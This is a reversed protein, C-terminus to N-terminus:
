VFRFECNKLYVMAPKIESIEGAVWVQSHSRLTKFQPYKSLDVQECYVYLGVTSAPILCVTYVDAMTSVLSYPHVHEFPLLWEVKLGVYCKAVMEQQFLPVADIAAGIELPLPSKSYEEAVFPGDVSKAEAMDVSTPHTRHEVVSPVGVSQAETVRQPQNIVLKEVQNIKVEQISASSNQSPTQVTLNVVKGASDRKDRVSELARAFFRTRYELLLGVVVIALGILLQQLWTPM